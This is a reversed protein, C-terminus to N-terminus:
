PDEGAQGAWWVCVGSEHGNCVESTISAWGAHMCVYVGSQGGLWDIPSVWWPTM